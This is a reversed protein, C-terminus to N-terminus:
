TLDSQDRYAIYSVRVCKCGRHTFSLIVAWVSKPVTCAVNIRDEPRPQIPLPQVYESNSCLLLERSARQFTDPYFKHSGPTWVTAPIVTSLAPSKLLSAFRVGSLIQRDFQGGLQVGEEEEDSADEERADSLDEDDEEQGVNADDDCDGDRSRTIRILQDDVANSYFSVIFYWTSHFRLLASSLVICVLGELMGPAVLIGGPSLLKSMQALDDRETAAGIYIRDFGVMAEGNQSSIFLGNGHIIQPHSRKSTKTDPGQSKKASWAKLANQCHVIVDRHIEIGEM